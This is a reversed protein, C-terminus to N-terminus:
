RVPQLAPPISRRVPARGTGCISSASQRGTPFTGSRAASPRGPCRAQGFAAGTSQAQEACPSSTKPVTGGRQGQEQDTLEDDGLLRPPGSAVSRSTCFLRAYAELRPPPPLRDSGPKEWLSVTAGSLAEAGGLVRALQKRPSTSRSASTGCASPSGGLRFPRITAIPLWRVEM